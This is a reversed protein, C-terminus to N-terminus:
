APHPRLRLSRDDRRPPEANPVLSEDPAHAHPPATPRGNSRADVLAAGLLAGGIGAIILAMHAGFGQVAARGVIADMVVEAAQAVGLGALIIAAPRARLRHAVAAGIALALPDVAKRVLWPAEVARCIRVLVMLTLWFAAVGLVNAVVTQWRSRRPGEDPAGAALERLAADLAGQSIGAEDAVDRLQQVSIGADRRADLEVARALVRHAVDEPLHSGDTM